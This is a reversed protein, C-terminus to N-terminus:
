TQGAPVLAAPVMQLIQEKVKQELERAENEMEQKKKLLEPPLCDTLFDQFARMFEGVKAYPWEEFSAISLQPDAHTFGALMLIQWNEISWTEISSLFQQWSTVKGDRQKLISELERLQRIRLRFEAVRGDPFVFDFTGNSANRSM